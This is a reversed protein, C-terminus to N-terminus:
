RSKIFQFTQSQAGHTERIRLVYHGNTLNMVNLENLSSFGAQQHLVVRGNMDYIEVDFQGPEEIALFLQTSCPNPYLNMGTLSSWEPVDTSIQDVQQFGQTLTVAGELTQVAIEGLSWSLQANNGAHETGASGILTQAQFQVASLLLVFLSFTKM